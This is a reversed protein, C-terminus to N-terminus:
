LSVEVRRPGTREVMSGMLALLGMLVLPAMLVLRGM